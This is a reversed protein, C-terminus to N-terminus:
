GDKLFIKFTKEKSRFLINANSIDDTKKIVFSFEEQTSGIQLPEDNDFQIMVKVETNSM